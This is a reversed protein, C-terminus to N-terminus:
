RRTKKRSRAPSRGRRPSSTSKAKAKVTGQARMTVMDVVGARTAWYEWARATEPGVSNIARRKEVEGPSLFVPGGLAMAKQQVRANKPLYVSIRVVDSLTVGAAAFGHGRMLTVCGNGLAVALDRGQDMNTVLLTTDGFKERIDWIPAAAGMFGGSHIVPRLPTPAIGFPLVDEAHSHVCAHIDPRKEYIGGHIHREVYPIRTDGRLPTGDLMFEMIDKETVLEPSRSCSMLYRNPENPHRMSVHGYADVVGENALIRNAVVIDRIAQTLDSM